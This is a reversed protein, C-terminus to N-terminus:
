LKWRSKKKLLRRGSPTSYVLEIITGGNFVMDGKLERRM